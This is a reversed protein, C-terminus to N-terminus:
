KTQGELATKLETLKDELEWAEEESLNACVRYRADVWRSCNAHRRLPLLPGLPRQACPMPVCACPHDRHMHAHALLPEFTCVPRVQAGLLRVSHPAIRPGFPRCAHGDSVGARWVGHDACKRLAGSVAYFAPDDSWDAMAQLPALCACHLALTCYHTRAICARLAPACRCARVHVHVLARVHLNSSYMFAHVHVHVHRAKAVFKVRLSPADAVVASYCGEASIFRTRGRKGKEALRRIVQHKAELERVQRSPM